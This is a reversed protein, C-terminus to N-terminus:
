AAARTFYGFPAEVNLQYYRSDGNADVGIENINVAGLDVGSVQMQELIGCATGALADVRRMNTGSLAFIQVVAVAEHRIKARKGLTRRESALHRVVLRIFESGDPDFELNDYSILQPVPSPPDNPDDAPIAPASMWERTFEEYIALRIEASSAM